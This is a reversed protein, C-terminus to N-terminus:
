ASRGQASQRKRPRSKAKKTTSARAQQASQVAQARVQQFLHAYHDLTVRPSSHGMFAAVTVVDLGREIILASAYTHRMEYPVATTGAKDRAPGWVRRTWMKWNLAGGREGPCVFDDEHHRPLRALADALDPEVPISRFLETKTSVVEGSQITDYVTLTHDGVDKWQLGAVEAPRLGAHLLLRFIARDRDSPMAKDLAGTVKKPYARRQPKPQPVRGLRLCPNYPILGEDAAVGLAASLCRMVNNTNTPPSGARMIEARFDRVRARGLERLPISGIYPEIWRDSLQARSTATTKAWQGTSFWRELFNSLPQDSPEAERFAGMRKARKREIDFQEATALDLFARSRQKGSERWKVDYVVGSKTRRKHVSM